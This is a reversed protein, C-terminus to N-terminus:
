KGTDFLQFKGDEVWVAQSNTLTIFPYPMEYIDAFTKMYEPKDEPTGFHPIVSFNVLNLGSYSKLNPAQSPDDQTRAPSIDPGALVSGASSGIYIIGRDLLTSINEFLGSDHFKQLLYFTNGGAVFILKSLSLRNLLAPGTLQRLDTDQVPFGLQILKDRDEKIWWPNSSNDAANPIFSVPTQSPTINALQPLLHIVRSAVSTLFCACLGLIISQHYIRM